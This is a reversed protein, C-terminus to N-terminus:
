EEGQWRSYTHEALGLLDCIRGTYNDAMEAFTAPKAYFAPMPPCLIAGADHVKLMNHLHTRNFPTERVALILPRREKLTVDAARHILHTSHGAAIAALTGMTCPLVVMADYRASGSSPTAAFNDASFWKGVWPLEQPEKGLEHRLVQEGAPSIVGHVQVQQRQLQQLLSPVYLMGSAGTIGLLIREIHM